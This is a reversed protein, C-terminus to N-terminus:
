FEFLLSQKILSMVDNKKPLCVHRNERLLQGVEVTDMWKVESHFGISLCVPEEHEVAIGHTLKDYVSM